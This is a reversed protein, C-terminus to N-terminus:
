GYPIVKYICFQSFTHNNQITYIESISCNNDLWADLVKNEISCAQPGSSATVLVFSRNNPSNIICSASSNSKEDSRIMKTSINRSYDDAFNFYYYTNYRFGVPALTYVNIQGKAAIGQMYNVAENFNERSYVINLSNSKLYTYTPLYSLPIIIIFFIYIIKFLTKKELKANLFNYISFLAYGGLLAFLTADIAFYRSLSPIVIYEHINSTGVLLYLFVGFCLFSAYNIKSNKKLIGIAAGIISLVLIPGLPFYDANILGKSTSFPIVLLYIENLVPESSSTATYYMIPFFFNKTFIYFIFFYAFLGMILGASILAISKLENTHKKDKREITYIINKSFLVILLFAFLGIYIFTEDAKIYAPFAALFGATISWIPKKNGMAILFAYFSLGVALGANIDPLVRTTYDVLFPALALLYVTASAFIPTYFKKSIGYTLILLLIYEVISPLMAQIAGYGFFKFSLAIAFINIFGYGFPNLIVQNLNGSLMYHALNIYWADDYFPDPGSYLYMSILIGILISALLFLLPLNSEHKQMRTHSIKAIQHQM